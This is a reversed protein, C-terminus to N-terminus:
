KSYKELLSTIAENILTTKSLGTTESLTDFQAKLDKDVWRTIREHTKEFAQAGRKRRAKEKPAQTFTYTSTYKQILGLIADDLLAAKALGEEDALADLQERLKKDLWLTIREHTEEYTQIGSQASPKQEAELNSSTYTETSAEEAMTPSPTPIITGLEEHVAAKPQTTPQTLPNIFVKKSQKPM